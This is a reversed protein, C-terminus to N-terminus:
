TAFFRIHRKIKEFNDQERFVRKRFVRMRFGRREGIIKIFIQCFYLMCPRVSAVKLKPCLMYIARGKNNKYKDKFDSIDQSTQCGGLSIKKLSILALKVMWASM